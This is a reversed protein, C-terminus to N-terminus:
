CKSLLAFASKVTSGLLTDFGKSVFGTVTPEKIDKVKIKLQTFNAARLTSFLCPLAQSFNLMTGIPLGGLKDVDFGVYTAFSIDPRLKGLICPTSRSNRCRM